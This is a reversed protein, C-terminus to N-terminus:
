LVPTQIRSARQRASPEEDVPGSLSAVGVGVFSFEESESLMSRKGVWRLGVDGHRRLQRARQEGDVRGLHVVDIGAIGLIEM